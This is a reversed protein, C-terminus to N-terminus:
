NNPAGNNVWAKIKSIKCDSLKATEKPMANYGAAWTISGVLKGNLAVAKVTSYSTFSLGGDPNQGSHCGTCYTKLVPVIFSAYSVDTTDCTTMVEDCTLDKAGQQIWAAILAIEETSLKPDPSPPMRDEGDNTTISKYMKSKNLDYPKVKGTNFVNNFNNMIVGEKHTAADHCGSKACNSVLIPLVDRSFYVLSSDCPTGLVTDVDMTDPPVTDIEMTDIPNGTTDIPGPDLPSSADHVCAPMLLVTLGVMLVAALIYQSFSQAAGTNKKLKNM